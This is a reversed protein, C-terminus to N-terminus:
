ASVKVRFVNVCEVNVCTRMERIYSGFLMPHSDHVSGRWSFCDNFLEASKGPRSLGERRILPGKGNRRNLSPLNTPPYRLAVPGLQDCCPSAFAKVQRKIHEEALVSLGSFSLKEIEGALCLLRPGAESRTGQRSSGAFGGQQTWDKRKRATNM